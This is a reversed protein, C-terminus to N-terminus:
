APHYDATRGGSEAPHPTGPGVRWPPSGARHGNHGSRAAKDTRRRLRDQLQDVLEHGTAEEAHM